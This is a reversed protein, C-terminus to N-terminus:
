SRKRAILSHTHLHREQGSMNSGSTDKEHWELIDFATFLRKIEHESLCMVRASEHLSWTDKNGLFDGCFIGGAQISRTLNHWALDFCQPDCYFLSESALVFGNTPYIYSNLDSLCIAFNPNDIFRMRCLNVANADNDFAHVNLGQDILYQSNRGDGCGSEVV